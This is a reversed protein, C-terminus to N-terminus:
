AGSRGRCQRSQSQGWRRSRVENKADAKHTKPLEFRLKNRLKVGMAAIENLAQKHLLQYLLSTEATFLKQQMKTRATKARDLADGEGVLSLLEEDSENVIPHVTILDMRAVISPPFDSSLVPMRMRPKRQRQAPPFKVQFSGPPNDGEQIERTTQDQLDEAKWMWSCGLEAALEPLNEAMYPSDVEYYPGARASQVFRGILCPM